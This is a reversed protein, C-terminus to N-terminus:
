SGVADYDVQRVRAEFSVGFPDFHLRIVDGGYAGILVLLIRGHRSNNHIQEPRTGIGPIGGAIPQYDM